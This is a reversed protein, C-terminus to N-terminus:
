ILKLDIEIEYYLLLRLRNQIASVFELLVIIMYYIKTIFFCVQNLHRLQINWHVEPIGIDTQLFITVLVKTFFTM